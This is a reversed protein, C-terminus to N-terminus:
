YFVDGDVTSGWPILGANEPHLPYPIAEGSSRAYRLIGINVDLSEFFNLRRGKGQPVAVWLYGDEFHGPGFRTAFEKYDTPLQRGLEHEVEVWDVVVRDQYTLGVLQALEEVADRIM